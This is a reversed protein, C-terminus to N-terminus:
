PVKESLEKLPEMLIDKSLLEEMMGDIMKQFDESDALDGMMQELIESNGEPNESSQTDVEAEVKASSSELREMTQEIAFKLNPPEKEPSSSIKASFKGFFDKMKDQIEQASESDGFMMDDNLTGLLNKTKESGLESFLSEM